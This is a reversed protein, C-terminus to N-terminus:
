SFARRDNLHGIMYNLLDDPICISFEQYAFYKFQAIDIHNDIRFIVTPYDDAFFAKSLVELLSESTMEGWVHIEEAWNNLGDCNLGFWLYQFNSRRVHYIWSWGHPSKIIAIFIKSDIDNDTIDPVVDKPDQNIILM